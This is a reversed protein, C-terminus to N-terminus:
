RSQSYIADCVVHRPRIRAVIRSETQQQEKPHVYGYFAPWTTCRRALRDLHELAGRTEIEVDGRIEIWRNSNAPDIILITARRDRELNRGKQRERMTNVLVAGDEFSFWVPQTQPQGGPMLTTLVAVLPRDLLDRHSSPLPVAERGAGLVSQTARPSDARVHPRDACADDVIRLPNIRGIVPVAHGSLQVPVCGGFFRPVGLYREALSDLHTEAGDETLETVGRVELWRSANLPDIVLLTARPDRRLNREKSFGRMTNILVHPPEYSFWVPQTQPMGDAFVTSLAATLPRELLDIHDAPVEARTTPQGTRSVSAQM